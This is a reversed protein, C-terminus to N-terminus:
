ALFVLPASSRSFPPPSSRPSSMLSRRPSPFPPPFPARVTSIGGLEIKRLMTTTTESERRRDVYAKCVYGVWKGEGRPLLFLLWIRRRSRHVTAGRRKPSSSPLSEFLSKKERTNTQTTSVVAPGLYPDTHWSKTGEQPSIMTHQLVRRKILPRKPKQQTPALFMKMQFGSYNSLPLAIYRTFVVRVSHSCRPVTRGQIKKRKRAQM